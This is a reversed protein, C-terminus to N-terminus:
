ADEAERELEDLVLQCYGQIDLWNDKYTPDGNIIRAIKSAIVDLAEATYDELTDFNPSHRYVDKLMQATYANDPFHNYRKGREEILNRISDM